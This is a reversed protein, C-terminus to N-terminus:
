GDSADPTGGISFEIGLERQWMRAIAQTPKEHGSGTNYGILIPAFGKGGPYGAEAMLKRAADPDYALGKPSRYGGISDVPVFVGAVNQYLRTVDEVIAKKDVAMTLARRVRPDVLPNPTGDLRNERCNFTFYYTGYANFSNVDGRRGDRQAEVLEPAYNLPRLAASRPEEVVFASRM